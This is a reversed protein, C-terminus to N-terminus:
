GDGTVEPHDERARGEVRGTTTTALDGYRKKWLRRQRRTGTPDAEIHVPRDRVTGKGKISRNKLTM